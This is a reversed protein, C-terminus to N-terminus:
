DLLALIQEHSIRVFTNQTYDDKEFVIGLDANELRTIAAYAAPGQYITKNAPWSKGDDTSIKLTLNKRDTKHNANVFLLIGKQPTPKKPSYRIIGANCGPDFLSLDPRSAWTKGEDSSTFTQRYGKRNLRSNVMWSSDSLEVVKSEDGPVLPSDILQWRNGHDESKFLHLGHDLNVLTHLLIGKSTQIGRGSTIFKFDKHWQPKSIQATIDVPDSWSKGYDQSKIYKLYYIQPENELNMYNFFMFITNTVRDVIMSPDSASQGRPYDVVRQIPTWSKGNDTSRRIVLNINKNDRLDACSPVREDIATILDGNPATVISPIRYCAIGEKQPFLDIFDLEQAPSVGFSFISITLVLRIKLGSKLHKMYWLLIYILAFGGIFAILQHYNGTYPALCYLIFGTM